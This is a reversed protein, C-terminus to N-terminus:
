RCYTDPGCVGSNCAGSECEYPYLCMEGDASLPECLNSGGIDCWSNECLGFLSFGEACVEGAQVTIYETAPACLGDEGCDSGTACVQMNPFLECAEGVQSVAVCEGIEEPLGPKCEEGDRRVCCFAEAPNCTGYIVGGQGDNIPACQEGVGAYRSFMKRQSEGGLPSAFSLCTGDYIATLFEDGCSANLLTDLCEQAAVGDYTVRGAETQARWAGFPAVNLLTELTQQCNDETLETEPPFLTVYDEYRLDYAFAVFFTEFDAMDCCSFLGQCMAAATEPVLQDIPLGVGSMMGAMDGAMDGAM